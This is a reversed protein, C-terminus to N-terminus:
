LTPHLTYRLGEPDSQTYFDPYLKSRGIWPDTSWKTSHYKSTFFFIRIYTSWYLKFRHQELIWQISRKDGTFLKWPSFEARAKHSLVLKEWVSSPIIRSLGTLGHTAPGSVGLWESHQSPWPQTYVPPHSLLREVSAGRSWGTSVSMSLKNTPFGQLGM